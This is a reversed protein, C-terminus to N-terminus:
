YLISNSANVVINMSLICTEVSYADGVGVRVAEGWVAGYVMWIDFTFQFYYYLM